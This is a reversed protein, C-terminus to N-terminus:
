RCSNAGGINRTVRCRGIRLGCHHDIGTHIRRNRDVRNRWVVRQIIDLLMLGGGDHGAGHSTLNFRAIRQQHRDVAMGIMANNVALQTVTNGDLRGIQNGLRMDFDGHVNGIRRLVMRMDHRMMVNVQIVLGKGRDGDIAHRTIVRQIASLQLRRFRGDATRHATIRVLPIDNVQHNIAMRDIHRHNFQRLQPRQAIANLNIGLPQLVVRLDRRRNGGMIGCSIGRRRIRCARHYNVIVGLSDDMDVRQHRIIMVPNDVVFLCMVWQGGHGTAHAAIHLHAIQDFQGDVMLVVIRLHLIVVTLM